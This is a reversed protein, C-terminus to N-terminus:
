DIRASARSIKKNLREIRKGCDILIRDKKPSSPFLEVNRRAKDAYWLASEPDKRHHEMYKALEVSAEVVIRGISADNEAIDKWLVVAREWDRERKCEFALAHKAAYSEPVEHLALTSFTDKAKDINGLSSFWRGVEFSERESREPDLGLLQKSLHIYLTILSLIDQENHKLVGFIGEPDKRELYDFYIIPALYGPVDQTRQLGLIDKEVAALKVRELKHKWMRRSAHYLDFHGFSPLKPVHDRILTHRTKVQPWDFSKGNYTVLTRYDVSTLFSQYLAIEAGPHPLFHQKLIVKSDTVSAHGLLFITNGAGGGLGTTETDFFFLEEAKHGIASLPHNLEPNNNWINVINILEAFSYKGHRYMIPYEVKRVLCYSDDFYFPEVNEVTWKEFFPIDGSKDIQDPIGQKDAKRGTSLHPKLRNLKSKISM